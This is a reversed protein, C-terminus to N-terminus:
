TGPHLWIHIQVQAALRQLDREDDATFARPRDDILCLSGIRWGDATSVPHGAYFRARPGGTVLPHDRFVPDKRADPIILTRDKEITVACLSLERPLDQGIPGTVSKIIQREDTIFSLSASSVGFRERAYSTIRDFHEEGGPELMGSQYLALCRRVEAEALRQQDDPGHERGTGGARELWGTQSGELPPRDFRYGDPTTILPRLHDAYGSATAVESSSYHAGDVPLDLDDILANIADAVLDRQRPPIMLLGALYGTIEVEDLGGGSGAYYLWVVSADLGAGGVAQVATWQQIIGEFVGLGEM